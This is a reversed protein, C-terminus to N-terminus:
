NLILFNKGVTVGNATGDREAQAARLSAILPTRDRRGALLKQEMAYLAAGRPTDNITADLMLLYSECRVRQPHEPARIKARLRCSNALHERASAVDGLRAYSVGLWETTAALEPSDVGFAKSQKAIIRTLLEISAATENSRLHLEASLAAVRGTWATNDKLRETAISFSEAATVWDGLSMAARGRAMHAAGARIPQPAVLEKPLLQNVLRQAEDFEGGREAAFVALRRASSLNEQVDGLERAAFDIVRLAAEKATAYDGADYEMNAIDTMTLAQDLKGRGKGTADIAM